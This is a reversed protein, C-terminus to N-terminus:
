QILTYTNTDNDLAEVIFSSEDIRKNLNNIRKIEERLFITSLNDM